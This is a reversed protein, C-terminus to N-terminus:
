KKGKEKWSLGIDVWDEDDFLKVINDTNNQCETDTLCATPKNWWHNGGLVNEAVESVITFRVGESLTSGLVLDTIKLRGEMISNLKLLLVMSLIQDYPEEPLECINIGALKYKEIADRNTINVLLSNQLVNALFFETREMAINQERISETEVLLSLTLDYTNVYFKDEFHVATQFYFDKEIRTNM